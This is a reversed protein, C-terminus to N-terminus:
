INYVLMIDESVCINITNTKEVSITCLLSVIIEEFLFKVKLM